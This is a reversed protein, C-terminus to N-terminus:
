KKQQVCPPSFVVFFSWLFSILLSGLSLCACVLRLSSALFSTPCLSGGLPIGLTQRLIRKVEARTEKNERYEQITARKKL